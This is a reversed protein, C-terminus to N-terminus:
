ESQRMTDNLMDARGNARVCLLTCPRACPRWSPRWNPPVKHCPEQPIRFQQEQQYLTWRRLRPHCRTHPNVNMCMRGHSSASMGYAGHPHGHHLPPGHHQARCKGAQKSRNEPIIIPLMVHHVSQIVSSLHCLGQPLACTCVCTWAPRSCHDEQQSLDRASGGRASLSSPSIIVDDCSFEKEFVCV